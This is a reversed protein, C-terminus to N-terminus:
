KTEVCLDQICSPCAHQLTIFNTENLPPPGHLTLSKNKLSDLLALLWDDTTGSPLIGNVAMQLDVTQISPVM